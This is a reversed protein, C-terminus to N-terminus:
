WLLHIKQTAHRITIKMKEKLSPLGALIVSTIKSDSPQLAHGAILQPRLEGTLFKPPLKKRVPLSNVEPL